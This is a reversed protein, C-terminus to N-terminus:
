DPRPFVGSRCLYQWASPQSTHKALNPQRSHYVGKGNRHRSSLLKATVPHPHTQSGLFLQKLLRCDTSYLESLLGASNLVCGMATSTHEESPHTRRTRRASCLAVAQRIVPRIHFVVRERLCRFHLVSQGAPPPARPNFVDRRHEKRALIGRSGGEPLKSLGRDHVQV